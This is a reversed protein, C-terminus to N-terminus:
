KQNDILFISVCIVLLSSFAWNNSNHPNNDNDINFIYINMFHVHM